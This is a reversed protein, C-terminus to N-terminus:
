SGAGELTAVRSTLAAITQEDRIHQRDSEALKDRLHANEARLVYVEAQVENLRKELKELRADSKHIEDRLAKNDEQLTNVIATFDARAESNGGIMTHFSGAILAWIFRLGAIM